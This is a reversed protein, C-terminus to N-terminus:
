RPDTHYNRLDWRGLCTGSIWGGALRVAGVPDLGLQYRSMVRGRMEDSASLQVLTSECLTLGGRVVM